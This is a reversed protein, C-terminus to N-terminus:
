PFFTNVSAKKSRVDYNCDIRSKQYAGFENQLLIDDTYYTIVGFYELNHGDFDWNGDETKTKFDYTYKNEIYDNIENTCSSGGEEGYINEMLDVNSMIKDDVCTKSMCNYQAKADELEVANLFGGTSIAKKCAIAAKVGANSCSVKEAADSFGLGRAESNVRSLEELDRKEKESWGYGLQLIATIFLGCASITSFNFGIDPFDWAGDLFGYVFIFFLLFLSIGGILIKIKFSGFLLYINLFVIAAMIIILRKKFIFIFTKKLSPM